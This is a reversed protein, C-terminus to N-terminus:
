PNKPKKTKKPNKPNKAAKKKPKKKPVPKPKPKPKKAALKKMKKAARKHRKTTLHDSWGDRRIERACCICLRKSANYAKKRVKKDVATHRLCRRFMTDLGDITTNSDVELCAIKTELDEVSM